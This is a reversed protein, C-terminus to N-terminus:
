GAPNEIWERYCPTCLFIIVRRFVQDMMEQQSLEQMQQILQEIARRSDSAFDEEALVPAGPDAM